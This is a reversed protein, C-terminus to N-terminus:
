SGLRGVHEGQEVHVVASETSEDHPYQWALQCGVADGVAAGVADGVDAGVKEGVADGEAAGVACGVSKGVDSADNDQSETLGHQVGRTREPPGANM